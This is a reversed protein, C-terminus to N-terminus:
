NGITATKVINRDLSQQTSVDNAVVYAKIPQQNGLTQAIQNQGSTGIVNFQPAAQAPASTAAGGGGASGGPTPVSLIAQVNKM